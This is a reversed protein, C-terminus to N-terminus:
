LQGEKTKAERKYFKYIQEKAMLDELRDIFKDHSYSEKDHSYSESDASSRFVRDYAKELCFDADSQQVESDRAFEETQMYSKAFKGIEANRYENYEAVYELSDVEGYENVYGKDICWMRYGNMKSM